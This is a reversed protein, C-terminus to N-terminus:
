ETSPTVATPDEHIDDKKLPSQRPQYINLASAIRKALRISAGTAIYIPLDETRECVTFGTAYYRRRDSM